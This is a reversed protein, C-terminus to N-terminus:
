RVLAPAIIVSVVAWNFAANAASSMFGAAIAANAAAAAFYGALTDSLTTAPWRTIYVGQATFEQLRNNQVEIVFIQDSANACLGGPNWLQGPDSGPFGDTTGWQLVWTPPNEAGARPALAVFSLVFLALCRNM